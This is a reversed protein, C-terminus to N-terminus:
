PTESKELTVRDRFDNREFYSVHTSNSVSIELVKLKVLSQLVKGVTKTAPSVSYIEKLRKNVDAANFKEKGIKQRYILAFVQGQLDDRDSMTLRPLYEKFLFKPIVERMEVNAPIESDNKLALIKSDILDILSKVAQDELTM